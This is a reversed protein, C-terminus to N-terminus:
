REEFTAPHQASVRTDNRLGAIAELEEAALEFEFM